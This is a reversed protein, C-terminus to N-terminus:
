NLSFSPFQTVSEHFLTELYTYDVFRTMPLKEVLNILEAESQCVFVSWLKSRDSALTYALLKGSYFYKDVMKRQEPITNIMEDTFNEPLIFEVMYRINGTNDSM